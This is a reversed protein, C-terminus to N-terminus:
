RPGDVRPLLIEVETGEGLASRVTLVGGLQRVLGHVASLGLGAAHRETRTSFFPEVARARTEPSMGEGSDRVGIRVLPGAPAEPHTRALSADAHVVSTAITLAGGGPMAEGANLALEALASELQSADAAVRAGPADLAYRVEVPEGATAAVLTRSRGVAEDLVLEEIALAQRRGVVLLRRALGAAREIADRMMRLDTLGDGDDALARELLEIRGQAAGLLNNFDHALAGALRGLAEMRLQEELRERLDARRRESAELEAIRLSLEENRQALEGRVREVAGDGPPAAVRFPLLRRRRRSARQIVFRAVDREPRAVTVQAPRGSAVEALRQYAGATGEIWLQPFGGGPPARFRVDIAGDALRNVEVDCGRYLLGGPGAGVQLSWRLVAELSPLARAGLPLFRLFRSDLSRAGVRRGVSAPTGEGLADLIREYEAWPIWGRRGRADSPELGADRLLADTRARGMERDVGALVADLTRRSAAGDVVPRASAELRRLEKRLEADSRAELDDDRM